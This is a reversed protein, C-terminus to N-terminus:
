FLKNIKILIILFNLKNQLMHNEKINLNLFQQNDVKIMNINQIIKMQLYFIQNLKLIKLNGYLNM